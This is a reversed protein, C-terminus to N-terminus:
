VHVSTGGVPICVGPVYVPVCVPVCMCVTLVLEEQPEM